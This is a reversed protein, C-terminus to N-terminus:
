TRRLVRRGTALLAAAYEPRVQRGCAGIGREFRRLYNAADRTTERRGRVEVSSMGTTEHKADLLDDALQFLMGLDTGARRLAEIVRPKARAATAGIALSAGFFGATKCRITERLLRPSSSKSDKGLRLDRVQGAVIGDAGAVQALERTAAVIGSAGATSRTCLEFARAFLADAALLALAGGFVVHLTPKGRRERDDDMCPLDDQVLSFNHILEIACAFPMVDSDRRGGCARFASICLFPRIRKGGPFLAYRCAKNVLTRNSAPFCAELAKEFPGLTESSWSKLASDRAGQDGPETTGKRGIRLRNM